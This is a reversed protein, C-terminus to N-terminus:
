VVSKRDIKLLNLKIPYVDKTCNNGIKVTHLVIPELRRPISFLVCCISHYKGLGFYLLLLANM